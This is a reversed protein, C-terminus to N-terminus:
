KEQELGANFSSYLDEIECLQYADLMKWKRLTCVNGFQKPILKQKCGSKRKLTHGLALM